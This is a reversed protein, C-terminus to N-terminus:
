SGQHLIKMGAEKTHYGDRDGGEVIEERHHRRGGSGKGKATEGRQRKDNVRGEQRYKKGQEVGSKM